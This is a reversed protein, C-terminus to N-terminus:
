MQRQHRRLQAATEPDVGASYQVATEKAKLLQSSNINDLIEQQSKWETLLRHAEGNKGRGHLENYSAQKYLAEALLVRMVQVNREDSNGVDMKKQEDAVKKELGLIKVVMKEVPDKEEKFVMEEGEEGGEEGGEQVEEFVINEDSPKDIGAKPRFRNFEM